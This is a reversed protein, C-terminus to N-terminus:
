LKSILGASRLANAVFDEDKFDNGVFKLEVGPMGCEAKYEDFHRKLHALYAAHAEDLQSLDYRSCEFPPFVVTTTEDTLPMSTGMWGVPLACPLFYNQSFRARYGRMISPNNYMRTSGFTYLPVIDKKEEICIRIFGKRDKLYSYEFLKEQANAFISEAFGGPILAPDVDPTQWWRTISNKDAGGCKDRYMEQHVPVHQIIPAFCLSIKRGIEPPGNGAEDFSDPNRAIVSHWGDALLSHPHISWLYRKDPRILHKNRNIM